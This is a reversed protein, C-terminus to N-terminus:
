FPRPPSFPTAPFGLLHILSMAKNRKKVRAKSRKGFRPLGLTCVRLPIAIPSSVLLRAVSDPYTPRPEAGPSFRNSSTTLGPPAAM